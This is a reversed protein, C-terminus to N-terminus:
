APLSLLPPALLSSPAREVPKGGGGVEAGGKVAVSSLSPCCGPASGEPAEEEEPPQGSQSLLSSTDVTAMATATDYAIRIKM